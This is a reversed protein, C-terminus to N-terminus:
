EIKVTFFTYKPNTLQVWNSSELKPPLLWLLWILLWSYVCSRKIRVPTNVPWVVDCLKKTGQKNWHKNAKVGATLVFTHDEAEQMTSRGAAPLTLCIEGLPRRLVNPCRWLQLTQPELFFIAQRDTHTHSEANGEQGTFSKEPKLLLM